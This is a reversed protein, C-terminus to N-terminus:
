SHERGPTTWTRAVGGAWPPILMAAGQRDDIRPCIRGVNKAPRARSPANTGSTRIPHALRLGPGLASPSPQVLGEIFEFIGLRAAAPNRFRTRWLLECELTAFFSECMANDYVGGVAGM